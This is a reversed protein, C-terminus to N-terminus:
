GCQLLAYEREFAPELAALLESVGSFVLLNSQALEEKKDKILLDTRRKYLYHFRQTIDEDGSRQVVYYPEIRTLADDSYRGRHVVFNRQDRLSKTADDITKLASAIPTGRVHSNRAIVGWRCEREPVGLCFIVNVLQLARDLVSCTRILHGELHYVIYDLRTVQRDAM